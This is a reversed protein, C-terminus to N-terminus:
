SSSSSKQLADIESRLSAITAQQEQVAKIVVPLLGIYNLSLLGDKGAGEVVLEPIIQKVDQAVLGLGNQDGPRDKWTWTVPRLRMEENLGNRVRRGYIAGGATGNGNINFDASQTTASQNQIFSNALGSASLASSTWTAGNSVLVNGSTGPGNLGTGGKN